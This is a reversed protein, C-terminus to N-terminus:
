ITMSSILFNHGRWLIFLLMFSILYSAFIAGNESLANWLNQNNVVELAPVRLELVLLTMVIAFIGDTLAQLREHSM